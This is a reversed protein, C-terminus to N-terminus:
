RSGDRTSTRQRYWRAIRDLEDDAEPARGALCPFVHQMGDVVSFTVDVGAAQAIAALRISDDLLTEHSGANIYLPPFAEFSAKLPNALPDTPPTSDGLYMSSMAGLIPRKVLVDTADNSDLTAGLHEMDVWPSFTIVAGPLPVGDQRLKLVSSIALNGGASDGASLLKGPHVGAELLARHVANADEIQAPFPAEPARRYDVVAATVGLRQALHAALKRHSDASGVAFGGGHYYLAVSNPDAGNPLAWIVPVGGISDSRYCVDMPELAPKHWEDFISRLDAISYDPNAIMRDSWSKYLQRLYDAPQAGSQDTLGKM